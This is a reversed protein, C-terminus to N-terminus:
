FGKVEGGLVWWCASIPGNERTSADAMHKGWGERDLNGDMEEEEFCLELDGCVGRESDKLSAYEAIPEVVPFTGPVALTDESSDGFGRRRDVEDRRPDRPPIELKFAHSILIDDQTWELGLDGPLSEALPTSIGRESPFTTGSEDPFTGAKGGFHGGEDNSALIIDATKGALGIGGLYLDIETDESANKTAGLAHLLAVNGMKSSSM